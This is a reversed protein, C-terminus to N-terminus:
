IEHAQELNLRASEYAQEALHLNNAQKILCRGRKWTLWPLRNKGPRSCNNLPIETATTSLRSIVRKVEQGLQVPFSIIKGSVECYHSYLDTEVIGQLELPSPSCGVVMGVLMALAIM